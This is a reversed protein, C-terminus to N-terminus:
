WVCNINQKTQIYNHHYHHNRHQTLKEKVEYQEKNERPQKYLRNFNIMNKM